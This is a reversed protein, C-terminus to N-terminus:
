KQKFLHPAKREFVEVIKVVVEAPIDIRGEIMSLLRKRPINTVKSLTRIGVGCYDMMNIIAEQPSSPGGNLQSQALIQHEKLKGTLTDQQLKELTEEIAKNEEPSLGNDSDVGEIDIKPFNNKDFTGGKGFIIPDQRQFMIVPKGQSM